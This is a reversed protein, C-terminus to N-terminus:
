RCWFNQIRCNLSKEIIKCNEGGVGEMIEIETGFPVIYTLIWSLFDLDGFDVDIETM